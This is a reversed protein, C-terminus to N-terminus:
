HLTITTRDNSPELTYLKILSLNGISHFLKKYTLRHNFTITRDEYTIVTYPFDTKLKTLIEEM